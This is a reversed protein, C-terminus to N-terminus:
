RKRRLPLDPLVRETLAHVLLQETTPSATGLERRANRAARAYRRLTEEPVQLTVTKNM